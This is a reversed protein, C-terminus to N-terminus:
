KFRAHRRTEEIKGLEIFNNESISKNIVYMIIQRIQLVYCKIGETTNNTYGDAGYGTSELHMEPMASNIGCIDLAYRHKQYDLNDRVSIAGGIDDSSTVYGKDLYFKKVLPLHIRNFDNFYASESSFRVDLIIKNLAENWRGTHLDLWLVAKGSNENIWQKLMKTEYNSDPYDGKESTPVDHRAWSDIYNFNFNPNVGNVYNYRLLNQDFGSANLIPIVKFRINDKMIALNSEEKGMLARIFTALGWIGQTEDANMGASLM